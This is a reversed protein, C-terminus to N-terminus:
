NHYHISIILILFSHNYRLNFVYIRRLGTTRALAGIYKRSKKVTRIIIIIVMIILILKLILMLILILILILILVTPKFM